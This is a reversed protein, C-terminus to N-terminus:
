KRKLEKFDKIFFEKKTSFTIQERDNFEYTWVVLNNKVFDITVVKGDISQWRSGIEIEADVREEKMDIKPEPKSMNPKNACFIKLTKGDDQYSFEMPKAHLNVYSRGNDDIVELRTVVDLDYHEKSSSKEAELANVLNRFATKIDELAAEKDFYHEIQAHYKLEELAREVENVEGKELDTPNPTENVKDARLYSKTFLDTLLPLKLLESAAVDSTVFREWVRGGEQKTVTLKLYASKNICFGYESGIPIFKFQAEEPKQLNSDPLEEFLEWFAKINSFGRINGIYSTTGGVTEIVITGNDKIFIVEEIFSTGKGIYRKGVVPMKNTM